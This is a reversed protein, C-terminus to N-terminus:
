PPRGHGVMREGMEVAMAMVAEQIPRSRDVPQQGARLGQLHVGQGQGVVAIQVARQLEILLGLFHADVRDESQFGVDGRAAAELLVGAAELLGTEMESQQGVVPGAKLVQHLEGRLGKQLAEVELRPDVALQQLRAVLPQEAEAAAQGAFHAAQEQGAPFGVEFLGPLGDGPEM